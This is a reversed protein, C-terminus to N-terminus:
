WDAGGSASVTATTSCYGSSLALVDWKGTAAAALELSDLRIIDALYISCSAKSSSKVSETPDLLNAKTRGLLAVRSAGAVAFTLATEWGTASGQFLWATLLHNKMYFHYDEPSLGKFFV